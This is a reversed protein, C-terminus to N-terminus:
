GDSAMTRARAPPITLWFSCCSPELSGDKLSDHAALVAATADGAAAATATADGRQCQVRPTHGALGLSPSPGGAAARQCKHRTDLQEHCLHVADQQRLRPRSYLCSRGLPTVSHPKWCNGKLGQAGHVGAAGGEEGAGAVGVPVEDLHALHQATCGPRPAASPSWASRTRLPPLTTPPLLSRSQSRTKSVGLQRRSDATKWSLVAPWSQAATPHGTIYSLGRWAAM